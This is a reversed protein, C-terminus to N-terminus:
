DGLYERLLRAVEQPREWHSAHGTDQLTTLQANPMAAVLADQEDRGFFADREGWILLTPAQISALDNSDDHHVLTDSVQRWVFGPMGRSIGVVTDLFDAPLVDYVTSVQFDRAFEDTVPDPQASVEDRLERMLTNTPTGIAGLLVMRRVLRPRTVAVRRAVLTGLSHGVLDVQSAGLSEALAGVDAALDDIRYGRDPRPSEGHGRLDVAIMHWAAPLLPLIPSFSYSSDSYGHILIKPVHPAARRSRTGQEIRHLRVASPAADSEPTTLSTTM